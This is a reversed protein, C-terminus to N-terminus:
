KWCRNCSLNARSLKPWFVALSSLIEGELLDRKAKHACNDSAHINQAPNALCGTGKPPSGTLNPGSLHTTSSLCRMQERGARKPAAPSRQNCPQSWFCLSWSVEHSKAEHSKPKMLSQSKDRLFHSSSITFDRNLLSKSFRLACASSSLVSYPLAPQLSIEEGRYPIKATTVLPGSTSSADATQMSPRSELQRWPCQWCWCPYPETRLFGSSLLHQHPHPPHQLLHHPQASFYVSCSCKSLVLCVLWDVLLLPLNCKRWNPPFSLVCLNFISKLNRIVTNFNCDLARAAATEPNDM